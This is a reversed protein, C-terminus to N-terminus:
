SPRVWVIKLSLSLSLSLSLFLSLSVYLSLFHTSSLSVAFLLMSLVHFYSLCFFHPLVLSITGFSISGYRFITSKEWSKAASRGIFVLVFQGYAAVKKFIYGM